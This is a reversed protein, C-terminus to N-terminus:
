AGGRKKFLHGVHSFVSLYKQEDPPRFGHLAYFFVANKGDSGRENKEGYRERGWVTSGGKEIVLYVM